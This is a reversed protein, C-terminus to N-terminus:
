CIRIKLKELALDIPNAFTTTGGGAFLLGVPRSEAADLILAGSDGAASFPVTGDNIALQDEFFATRLGYRVEIDASLDVIEGATELTTRGRKRVAQGLCPAMPPNRVLGIGAIRPSVEAARALRAIALDVRNASGDFRLPVFETLHAIPHAPNGGDTLGPELIPDGREANNTNALVHNNSLIYIEDPKGDDRKALCGLTGAPVLYHGVSVGCATPRKLATIVGAEIEPT